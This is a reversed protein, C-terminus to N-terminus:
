PNVNHASMSENKLVKCVTETYQAISTSRNQWDANEYWKV